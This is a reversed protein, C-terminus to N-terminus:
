REDADKPSVTGEFLAAMFHNLKEQENDGFDSFENPSLTQSFITRNGAWVLHYYTKL